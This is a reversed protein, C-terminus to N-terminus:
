YRLLWVPILSHGSFPMLLLCPLFSGPHSAVWIEKLVNKEQTPRSRANLTIEIAGKVGNRGEKLKNMLYHQVGVLNWTYAPALLLFIFIICDRVRPHLHPFWEYARPCSKSGATAFVFRSFPSSGRALAKPSLLCLAPLPLMMVRSSGRMRLVIGSPKQSECTM